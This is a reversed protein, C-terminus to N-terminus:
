AGQFENRAKGEIWPRICLCPFFVVQGAWIDDPNGVKARRLISSLRSIKLSCLFINTLSSFATLSIFVIALSGPVRDTVDFSCTRRLFIRSCLQRFYSRHDVLQSFSANNVLIFGSVELSLQGFLYITDSLLIADQFVLTALRM